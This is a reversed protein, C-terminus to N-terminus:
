RDEAEHGFEIRWWRRITKCPEADISECRQGGPHNPRDPAIGRLNAIKYIVVNNEPSDGIALRRLLEEYVSVNPRLYGVAHCSLCGNDALKPLVEELFFEQGRHVFEGGNGSTESEARISESATISMWGALLSIQVLGKIQKM